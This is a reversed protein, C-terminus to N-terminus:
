DKEYEIEVGQIVFNLNYATGPMYILCESCIDANPKDSFYDNSDNFGIWGDKSYGMTDKFFNICRDGSIVYCRYTDSMEQLSKILNPLGTGGTEDIERRGSIKNQFATVNCFDVRTYQEDFLLQHKQFTEAVKLYRQTPIPNSVSLINKEIGDGLLIDSFNVIAINIGYYFNDDYNGDELVKKYGPAVDIDILCEALAHEISNGALETCVLVVKDRCGESIGFPKLFSDIEQGYQGLFNTREKGIGKIIRRYHYGYLDFAFKSIYKYNDEKRGTQLLLLPSSKIGRTQIRDACRMGIYVPHRKEEILYYCICEFFVYTLKDIFEVEPFIIKVAFKMNRYKKEASAIINMIQEIEYGTVFPIIDNSNEADRMEEIIKQRKKILTNVNVLLVGNQLKVPLNSNTIIRSLLDINYM